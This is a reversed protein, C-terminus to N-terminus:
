KGRVKQILREWVTELNVGSGLLIEGEYALLLPIIPLTVKIKHKIDLEPAKIASAIEKQGHLEIGQQQLTAVEQRVADLLQTLENEEVRGEDLAILVAEVTELQTENLRQTISEIVAREGSDYRLLLAHKMDVINQNFTEQDTLLIDLKSDMQQLKTGIEVLDSPRKNDSRSTYDTYEEHYRRASQRLQDIERNYRARRRPEDEYRLADEYEKLLKLDQTINDRLDQLRRDAGLSPAVNNNQSAKDVAAFEKIDEDIPKSSLAMVENRKTTSSTSSSYHSKLPPLSRLKGITVKIISPQDTLHRYLEEYGENTIVNYYTFSRLIIPIHASDQPSFIIPIFKTNKAEREYLEYTIVAGEWKAGLGKEVEDEGKFRRDYNETCVVLVFDAKEIQNVMWRPWGESPSMEYQDVYCDIGDIRLKNSLSLVKDKHESSDHSYSIFVKPPRTSATKTEDPQLDILQLDTKERPTKTMDTFEISDEPTNPEVLSSKLSGVMENIASFIEPNFKEQLSRMCEDCFDGTRLSQLLDRKYLKKDFFCSRTDEHTQLDPAVFSLSYRIFYYCLYNNRSSVFKENDKLTVVALGESAEHSGFLNSYLDSYLPGNLVGIIFPRFGRSDQRYRQLFEFTEKTYYERRRFPLACMKLRAPPTTFQFECQAVNLLNTAKIIDEYLDEGISLVEISYPM